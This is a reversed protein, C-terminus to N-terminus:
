HMQSRRKDVLLFASPPMHRNDGASKRKKKRKKKKKSTQGSTRPDPRTLEVSRRMLGFHLIVSSSSMPRVTLFIVAPSRYIINVTLSQITINNAQLLQNMTANINDQITDQLNTADALPAPPTM